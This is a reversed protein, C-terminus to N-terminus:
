AASPVPLCFPYSSGMANQPCAQITANGSSFTLGTYSIALRTSSYTHLSDIILGTRLASARRLSVGFAVM